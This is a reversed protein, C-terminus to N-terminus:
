KHIYMRIAKHPAAKHMYDVYNTRLFEDALTADHLAKKEAKVEEAWELYTPCSSHCHITRNFCDM